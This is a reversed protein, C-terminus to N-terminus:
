IKFLDVFRDTYGERSGRLFGIIHPKAMNLVLPAVDFGVVFYQVFLTRGDGLDYYAEASYQEHALLSIETYHNVAVAIPQGFAETEQQFLKYFAGGVEDRYIEVDASSRGLTINQVKFVTTTALTNPKDSDNIEISPYVRRFFDTTGLTQADIKAAELDLVRATKAIGFQTDFRSMQRIDFSVFQSQLEEQSVIHGGVQVDDTDLDVEFDINQEFTEFSFAPSPFLHLCTILIFMFRLDALVNRM